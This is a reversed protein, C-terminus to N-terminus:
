PAIEAPAQATMDWAALTGDALDVSALYPTRSTVGDREQQLQGMFVIRGPLHWHDVANVISTESLPLETAWREALTTDLRALALRGADDMRTGYVILVGAPDDLRLATGPLGSDPDKLFRGKLYTASGAVPTLNALREFRDDDRGDEVVDARWFTRRALAGDDTVQYPYLLNDGWADDGADAAEKESYLGLWTGDLVVQRVPIEGIPYMPVLARMGNAKLRGEPYAPPQPTPVYPELSAGAGRVVWQRADAAMVVLGRDFGFHEAGSPLKGALQAHKRQLEAPDLVFAGDSAAVAFPEDGILLWVRDGDQGLLRGDVSSYMVRTQLTYRNQADPDGLTMLRRKWLPRATAPDFAQLEFHYYIDTRWRRSSRTGVGVQRSEEVKTLVWLRPAGDGAVMLPEGHVEPPDFTSSGCGALLLAALLAFAGCWRATPTM